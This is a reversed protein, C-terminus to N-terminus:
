NKFRGMDVDITSILGNKMTGLNNEKLKKVYMVYTKNEYRFDIEDSDSEEAGVNFTHIKFSNNEDSHIVMQTEGKILGEKKRYRNVLIERLDLNTSVYEYIDYPVYDTTEIEGQGECEPCNTQGDTCYECDLNGDGDCEECKVQEGDDGEITGDGGCEHCTHAGAGDCEGCRDYGDGGCYSCTITQDNGGFEVISFMFINQLKSKTIEPDIGDMLDRCVFVLQVLEVKSLRERIPLLHANKMLEIYIGESTANSDFFQKIARATRFLDM